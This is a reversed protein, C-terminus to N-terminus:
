RTCDASALSIDFFLKGDVDVFRRKISVGRALLFLVDPQECLPLMLAKEAQAVQSLNPDTTGDAPRRRHLSRITMVLDSGEFAVQQLELGPAYPRPLGQQFQDVIAQMRAAIAVTERAKAARNEALWWGGGIIAIGAALVIAIVWNSSGQSAM